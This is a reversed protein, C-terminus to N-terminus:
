PEFKPNIRLEATQCRRCFNAGFIRVLIRVDMHFIRALIRVLFEAVLIRVVFGMLNAALIKPLGGLCYRCLGVALKWFTM